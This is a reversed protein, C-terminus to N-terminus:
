VTVGIMPNLIRAIFHVIVESTLCSKSHQNWNNGMIYKFDILVYLILTHLELSWTKYLKQVYTYTLVKQDPEGSDWGRPDNSM